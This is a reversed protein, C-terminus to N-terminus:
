EEGETPELEVRGEDTIRVREMPDGGVPTLSAAADARQSDIEAEESEPLEFLNPWKVGYDESEPLAGYEQLRNLTARLIVPEAHQEQRSSITEHWTKKDQTSAREGTESGFLMRTPIGPQAASAILRMYLTVPDSPDPTDGGVWDLDIGQGSIQRRLDHYMEEIAEGFEDMQNDGVEMDPDLSALLIQDALQWYAEATAATIKELDVLLNFVRKLAPRGYIEDSLRDEAVHIIRSWHVVADADPFGTVGSSLDVRYLTPLGFREESPDDEWDEVEIHREDFTSLYIVDEPGQMPEMETRLDRDTLTAQGILMGGFRGIRSQRDLRELRHVFRLDDRDMLEQVAGAFETDTDGDEHITPAHRWTAQPAMDVLRGAIHQRDYRQYYHHADLNQEEPYGAVTWIDREGGYQFGAKRFARLRDTKLSQVAQRDGNVRNLATSAGRVKEGSPLEYWGGDRYEVGHEELRNRVADNMPVRGM